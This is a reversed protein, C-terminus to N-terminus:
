KSETGSESNRSIRKAQKGKRKGEGEKERIQEEKAEIQKERGGRLGKSVKKRM